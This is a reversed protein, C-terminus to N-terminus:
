AVPGQEGPGEDGADGMPPAPREGKDPRGTMVRSAALTTGDSAVEGVARVMAGVTIASRTATEGDKEYTTSSSTRVVRTFGSLDTLTITDDGVQTVWGELHAPLVTVVSAVKATARPDSLRVHVVDGKDVAGRTAKTRGVYYTTSSTLGITESGRPTSVTLSDGDVATVLGGPGGFGHRGMGPGGKGPGGHRELSREQPQGPAPVQSPSPSPDAARAFGTAGLALGAVVGAAGLALSRRTSMPGAHM